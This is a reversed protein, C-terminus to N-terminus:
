GAEELDACALIPRDGSGAEHVNVHKPGGSFHAEFSATGRVGSGHEPRLELEKATHSQQPHAQGGKLVAM